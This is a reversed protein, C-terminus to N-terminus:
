KKILWYEYYIINANMFIGNDHRGRTGRGRATARGRTTGRGRATGRGRTTGMGMGRTTGRGRTTGERRMTNSAPSESASNDDIIM